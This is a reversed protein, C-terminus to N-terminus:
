VVRGENTLEIAMALHDVVVSGSSVTVGSPVWGLYGRMGVIPIGFGPSSGTFSYARLAAATVALDLDTCSAVVGSDPDWSYCKLTGGNVTQGSAARLVLNIAGVGDLNVGFYDVGNALV